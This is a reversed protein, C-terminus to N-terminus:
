AWSFVRRGGEQEVQRLWSSVTMRLWSLQVAYVTTALTSTTSVPQPHATLSSLFRRRRREKVKNKGKEGGWAVFRETQAFGRERELKLLVFIAALRGAM